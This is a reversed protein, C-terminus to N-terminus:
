NGAKKPGCLELNHESLDLNNEELERIRAKLPKM